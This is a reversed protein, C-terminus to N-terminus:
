VGVLQLYQAILEEFNLELSELESFETDFEFIEDNGSDAEFCIATGLCDIAFVVHTKPMGGDWYIKNTQEFNSPTLLEHIDPLESESDTVLDMLSPTYTAGYGILYQKYSHPFKVNLQSELLVIDNENFEVSSESFKEVFAKFKSM